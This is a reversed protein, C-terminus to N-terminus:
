SLCFKIKTGYVVLTHDRDSDLLRPVRVIYISVIYVYYLQGFMLLLHM